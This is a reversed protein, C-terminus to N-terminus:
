LDSGLSLHFRVDHGDGDSIPTAVDIRFPGVPSQWRIGVGAGASYATDYSNFARGADVFTAASWADRFRYNYELTAVELYRGGVPDGDANRPGIDRFKFGRVSRDGGAFFRQSAPVRDFDNSEIWGLQLAGVFTSRELFGRLYRFEATVKFFDISSLLAERGGYVAFNESQGWTVFPRGKRRVRAYSVGPLVLDTLNEVEAVTSEEREWRLFLSQIFDHETLTVRQFNLTSKLTETESEDFDEHLVGAELGWYNTLPQNRRPIRYGLSFSQRPKSLEFAAEASHGSRNILPKQWSVSLRPGNIDTSYGVGLSVLNGQKKVLTIRVPVTTGYREDRLPIVRVSAFYGSKRLNETVEAIASTSFPDGPEFTLWRRLFTETFADQDFLVNGFTYREGSAATLRITAGLQQRSVRVQAVPFALDFYGLDAARDLLLSKTAEYEGSLFIENRRLPVRRIVSMFAPDERAPGQVQLDVSRVRVPDNPTATITITADDGALTSDVEVDAAYYGLASLATRTREPLDREFRRLARENASPLTGVFVRVNEELREPLGEIRLETAAPVTGAFLLAVLAALRASRAAHPRLAPAPSVSRALIPPKRVTSPPVGAPGPCALFTRVLPADPRM